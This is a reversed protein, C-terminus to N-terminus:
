LTAGLKQELEKIKENAKKLEKKLEKKESSRKKCTELYRDRSMTVIDLERQLRHNEILLENYQKDEESQERIVDYNFILDFCDVIRAWM